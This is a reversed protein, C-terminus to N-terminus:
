SVIYKRVISNSLWSMKIKMVCSLKLRPANIKKSSFVITGQKLQNNLKKSLKTMIENPFCLSSVWIIDANSLNISPNMFSGNILKIKNKNEFKLKNKALVATNHREEALEIGICKTFDHDLAGYIVTKGFGSGLDYFRKNNTNTGHLMKIMGERTLEGYTLVNGTKKFIKETDNSINYKDRISDYIKTIKIYEKNKCDDKILKYIVYSVFFLTLFTIKISINVNYNM